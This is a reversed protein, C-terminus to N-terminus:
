FQDDIIKGAQIVTAADSISKMRNRAFVAKVHKQITVAARHRKLLASYEKRTKHGRIVVHIPM